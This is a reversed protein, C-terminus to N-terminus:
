EDEKGPSDSQPLDLNESDELVSLWREICWENITNGFAEPDETGCIAIEHIRRDYKVTLDETCREFGEVLLMWEPSDVMFHNEQTMAELLRATHHVLADQIVDSENRGTVYALRRLLNRMNSDLRVNVQKSTM